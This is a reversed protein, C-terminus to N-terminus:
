APASRDCLDQNSISDDKDDITTAGWKVCGATAANEWRWYGDNMHHMGMDFIKTAKTGKTVFKAPIVHKVLKRCHKPGQVGCRHSIALYPDLLTLEEGFGSIKFFGNHDTKVTALPKDVFVEEDMLRVIVNAAPLEGCFLTGTAGTAQNFDWILFGYIERLLILIIAAYKRMMLAKKRPVVTIARIPDYEFRTAKRFPRSICPTRRFHNILM